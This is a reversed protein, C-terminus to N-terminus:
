VIYNFLSYASTFNVDENMNVAPPSNTWVPIDNVGSVTIKFTNSDTSLDKTNTAVVKFSENGTWNLENTSFTITYNNLSAEIHGDVAVPVLSYSMQIPSDWIDSFYDTVNILKNATTDEPFAFTDPVPSTLAPAIRAVSAVATFNEKTDREELAWNWVEVQDIIGELYNNETGSHRGINLPNSNTLDGVGLASDAQMEYRDIFLKFGTDSAPNVSMAVAHWGGDNLVGQLVTTSLTASDLTGDVDSSITGSLVGGALGLSYYVNGDRKSLIIGDADTTLIWASISFSEAVGFNLSADNAVEVYDDVGDFQLGSEIIGPVWQPDKDGDGNGPDADNLVGTNDLSSSDGAANGLDENFAWRGKLAIKGFDNRVEEATLARKYLRVEDITGNYGYPDDVKNGIFLNEVSTGISQPINGHSPGDAPTGDIYIHIDDKFTVAVHYWRDTTIGVSCDRSYINPNADIAFYLGVGNIWKLLFGPDADSHKSVIPRAFGKLRFNLWTIITIEETIDLSAGKGCDLVDDKGDFTMGSGSIGTDWAASVDTNGEAGVDLIGHNNNTSDDQANVGTGEEFSWSGVLDPDVRNSLSVSNEGASEVSVNNGELMKMIGPGVTGMVMLLIVTGIILFNCRMRM